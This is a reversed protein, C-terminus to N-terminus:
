RAAHNCARATGQVYVLFGSVCAAFFPLLVGVMISLALLGSLPLLVGRWGQWAQELALLLPVLKWGVLRTVHLYYVLRLLTPLLAMFAVVLSLLAFGLFAVPQVWRPYRRRQAAILAATRAAFDAPPPPVLPARRLAQEMRQWVAWERACSSCSALHAQWAAREEPTLAEESVKMWWMDSHMESM